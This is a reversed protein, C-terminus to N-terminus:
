MVHDGLIRFRNWNAGLALVPWPVGNVANIDGWLDDQHVGARASFRSCLVCLMVNM